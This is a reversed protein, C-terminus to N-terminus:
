SSHTLLWLMFQMSTTHESHCTFIVALIQQDHVVTITIVQTKANEPLYGVAIGWTKGVSDTAMHSLGQLHKMATFPFIHCYCFWHVFAIKSVYMCTCLHMHVAQPRHKRLGRCAPLHWKSVSVIIGHWINKWLMLFHLIDWVTQFTHEM